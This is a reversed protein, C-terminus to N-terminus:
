PRFNLARHRLCGTPDLAGSARGRTQVNKTSVARDHDGFAPQFCAVQTQVNKYLRDAPGDGACDKMTCSVGWRPTECYAGCKTAGLAALLPRARRLRASGTAQPQRSACAGPKIIGIFITAGRVPAGLLRDGYIGNM